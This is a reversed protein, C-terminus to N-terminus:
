VRGGSATIRTGTPSTMTCGSRPVAMITSSPPAASSNTAPTRSQINRAAPTAATPQRGSAQDNM